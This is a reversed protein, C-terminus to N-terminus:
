VSSGTLSQSLSSSGESYCMKCLWYNYLPYITGMVTLLSVICSIFILAWGGHPNSLHQNALTDLCAGAPIACQGGAPYPNPFAEPWGANGVLYYWNKYDQIPNAGGIGNFTAVNLIFVVLMFLVYGGHCFKATGSGAKSFYMAACGLILALCALAGASRTFNVANMFKLAHAGFDHNGMSSSACNGGAKTQIVLNVNDWFNNDDWRACNANFTDGVDDDDTALGVKDDNICMGQTLSITLFNYSKSCPSKIFSDDENQDEWVQMIWWPQTEAGFSLIACILAMIIAVVWGSTSLPKLIDVM